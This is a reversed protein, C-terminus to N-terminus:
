GASTVPVSTVPLAGLMNKGCRTTSDSNYSAFPRLLPDGDTLLSESLKNTVLARRHAESLGQPLLGPQLQDTIDRLPEVGTLVDGKPNRTAELWRRMTERAMEKAQAQSMQHVTATVKLLAGSKDILVGGCSASNRKGMAEKKNRGSSCPVSLHRKLMLVPVRNVAVLGPCTKARSLGCQSRVEISHRVFGPSACKKRKLAAKPKRTKGKPRTHCSAALQAQPSPMLSNYRDIVANWRSVSATLTLSQGSMNASHQSHHNHVAESGSMYGLLGSGSLDNIPSSNKPGSHAMWKGLWSFSFDLFPFRRQTSDSLVSSMPQHECVM